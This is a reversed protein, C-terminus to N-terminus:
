IQVPYLLLRHIVFLFQFSMNGATQLAPVLYPISPRVLFEATLVALVPMMIMQGTGAAIHFPLYQGNKFLIVFQQISKYPRSDIGYPKRVYHHHAEIRRIHCIEPFHSSM